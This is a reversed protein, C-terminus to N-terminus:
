IGYVNTCLQKFSPLSCYAIELPDVCVYMCVYMCVYVYEIICVYICVVYICVYICLCVYMCVIKPHKGFFAYQGVYTVKRLSVSSSEFGYPLNPHCPM